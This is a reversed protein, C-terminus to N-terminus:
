GQKFFCRLNNNFITWSVVPNLWNVFNCDHDRNTDKRDHETLSFQM